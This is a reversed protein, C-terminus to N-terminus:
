ENSRIEIEKVINNIPVNGKIFERIRETIVEKQVDNLGKAGTVIIDFLNTKYNPLGFNFNQQITESINRKGAPVNWYIDNLKNSRIYLNRIDYKNLVKNFLKIDYVGLNECKFQTSELANDLLSISNLSVSGAVPSKAYKVNTTDKEQVLIGNIYLKSNGTISDFTFTFFLDQNTLEVLDASLTIKEIDGAIDSVYYNFYLPNKDISVKRNVQETNSLTRRLGQQNYPGTYLTDTEYQLSHVKLLNLDKDFVNVEKLSVASLSSIQYPDYIVYPRPEIVGNNNAYFIDLYKKTSETFSSSLKTFFLPQRNNNLKYLYSEQESDSILYIDGNKDTAVNTITQQNATNTLYTLNFGQLNGLDDVTHFLINDFIYWGRNFIDTVLTNNSYDTLYFVAEGASLSFNYTKTFNSFMGISILNGNVTGWKDLNLSVPTLVPESFLIGSLPYKVMFYNQNVPDIPGPSGSYGVNTKFSNFLGYYYTDDINSSVFNYKNGSLSSLQLTNITTFNKDLKSLYFTVDEPSSTIPTIGKSSVAEFSTVYYGDVNNNFDISLISDPVKLSSKDLLVRVTKLNEFETNAIVINCGSTFLILNNLEEFNTLNLGSENYFNNLVTNGIAKKYDSSKLNFCISFDGSASTKQSILGTNNGLVIEKADIEQLNYNSDYIQIADENIQYDYNKNNIRKIDLESMRYYSYTGNPEFVLDSTKDFYFLNQASLSTITNVFNSNFTQTYASALSLYNPNYYRDLWLPKSDFSSVYLWSCLYTGTENNIISDGAVTPTLKKFVKDSDLPNQGAFAGADVLKSDNINLNTFPTSSVPFHFYTLAGKKLNLPANYTFFTLTLDPFGLEQNTGTEISQYERNDFPAGSFNNSFSFNYNLDLQNKLPQLNVYYNNDKFVVDTSVLYNNKLGSLSYCFETEVTPYFTQEYANYSTTFERLRKDADRYTLCFVASLNYLGLSSVVYSDVSKLVVRDLEQTVIFFSDSGTDLPDYRLYFIISNTQPDQVYNFIYPTDSFVVFNEDDLFAPSIYQKSQVFPLATNFSNRLKYIYCENENLFEIEYMNWAGLSRINGTSFVGNSCCLSCSTTSYDGYYDEWFGTGYSTLALNQLTTSIKKPYKATVPTNLTLFDPKDFKDTLVFTNYYNISIDRAFSFLDTNFLNLGYTFNNVSSNLVVNSDYPYEVAMPQLSSLSLINM